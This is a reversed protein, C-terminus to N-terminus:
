FLGDGEDDTDADDFEDTDSNAYLEAYVVGPDDGDHARHLAALLEAGELHWWGLAARDVILPQRQRTPAFAFTLLNIGFLFLQVIM